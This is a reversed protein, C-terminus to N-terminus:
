NVNARVLESYDKILDHILPHFIDFEFNVISRIPMMEIATGTLFAAEFESLEDRSIRRQYVPIGKKQALEIITQRTIGDLFCDPIPTHLENNKILFLNATTAETLYEDSSLMLAEDAGNAIAENKAMTALTYICSAKTTYPSSDANPKKWKSIILKAGRERLEQRKEEFVPWAAIAVHADESGGSILMTETGRWIFPRIYGNIINNEKVVQKCADELELVSFKIKLGLVDASHFLRAIHQNLKFPKNDYVRIGEFASSAYHLGHSLVHINSDRWELLKGDMWILGDRDSFKQQM